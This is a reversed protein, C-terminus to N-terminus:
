YKSELYKLQLIELSNEYKVLAEFENPFRKEKQENQFAHFMEHILKSALITVDMENQLYWIALYEGQYKIATNVIFEDTKKITKNNIIVTDDNYLAFNYKQIKAM